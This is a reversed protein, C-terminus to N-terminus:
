GERVVKVRADTHLRYGVGRVTSVLPVGVGIKNRLRTVHVDVSRQGTYQTDWVQGLLQARTFARRPNDALCLLLDFERRTL